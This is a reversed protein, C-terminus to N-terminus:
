IVVCVSATPSSALDFSTFGAGTNAKLELVLEELGNVKLGKVEHEVEAVVVDAATIELTEVCDDDATEDLLDSKRVDDVAIGVGTKM